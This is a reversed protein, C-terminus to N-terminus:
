SQLIRTWSADGWVYKNLINYMPEGAIEIYDICFAPLM